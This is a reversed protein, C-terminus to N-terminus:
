DHSAHSQIFLAKKLDGEKVFGRELLIQGLRRRGNERKKIEIAERLQEQSLSGMSLLVEGLRKGQLFYEELMAVIVSSKSRRELHAKERIEELIWEDKEHYCFTTQM